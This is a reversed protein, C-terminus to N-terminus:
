QMHKRWTTYPVLYFVEFLVTQKEREKERGIRGICLLHAIPRFMVSLCTESLSKYLTFWVIILIPKKRWTGM